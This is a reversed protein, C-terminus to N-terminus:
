LDQGEATDSQENHKDICDVWFREIAARQKIHASVQSLNKGVHEYHRFTLAVWKIGFKDTIITPETPLTNIPDAKPPTGCDISLVSRVIQTDTTGLISCGPLVAVMIFVIITYVKTLGRSRKVITGTTM